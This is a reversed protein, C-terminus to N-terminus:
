SKTVSGGCGNGLSQPSGSGVSASTCSIIRSISGAGQLPVPSAACFVLPTHHCIAGFFHSLYQIQTPFICSSIRILIQPSRVVRSGLFLFIRLLKCSYFGLVAATRAGVVLKPAVKHLGWRAQSSSTLATNVM